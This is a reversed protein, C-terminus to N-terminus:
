LRQLDGEVSIRDTSELEYAFNSKKFKIFFDKGKQEFVYDNDFIFQGNVFVDFRSHDPRLTDFRSSMDKIKCNEIKWISYNIDQLDVETLLFENPENLQQLIDRIQKVSM